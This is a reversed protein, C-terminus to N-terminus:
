KFQTKDLYFVTHLVLLTDNYYNRREYGWKQILFEDPCGQFKDNLNTTFFIRTEITQITVVHKITIEKAVCM